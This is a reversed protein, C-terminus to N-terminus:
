AYKADRKEQKLKQKLWPKYYKVQKLYQMAHKVLLKIEKKITPTLEENRYYNIERMISNLKPDSEAKDIIRKLDANRYKTISVVGPM